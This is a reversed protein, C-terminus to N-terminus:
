GENISQPLTVITQISKIKDLAEQALLKLHNNDITFRNECGLINIIERTKYLVCSKSSHEGSCIGPDCNCNSARTIIDCIKREVETMYIALKTVQLLKLIM